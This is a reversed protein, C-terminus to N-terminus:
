GFAQHPLTPDSGQHALTALPSRTLRCLHGHAAHDSTLHRGRVEGDALGPITRAATVSGSGTHCDKGTRTM